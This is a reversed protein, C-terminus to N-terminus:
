VRISAASAATATTHGGNETDRSDSGDDERGEVTAANEKTGHYEYFFEGMYILSCHLWLVAGVISVIMLSVDWDATNDFVDFYSLQYSYFLLSLFNSLSRYSFRDILFEVTLM